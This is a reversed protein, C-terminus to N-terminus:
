LLHNKKVAHLRTFIEAINTGNDMLLLFIGTKSIKTYLPNRVVKLNKLTAYSPKKTLIEPYINTVILQILANLKRLVLCKRLDWM